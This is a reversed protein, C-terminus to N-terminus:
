VGSQRCDSEYLADLIFMYSGLGTEFQYDKPIFDFYSFLNFKSILFLSVIPILLAGIFIKLIITRKM